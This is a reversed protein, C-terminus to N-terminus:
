PCLRPDRLRSVRRRSLSVLRLSEGRILFREGDALRVRDIERVGGRRVRSERELPRERETVEFLFTPLSASRKLSEM